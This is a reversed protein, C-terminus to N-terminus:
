APNFRATAFLALNFRGFWQQSGASQRRSGYEISIVRYFPIADKGAIRVGSLVANM